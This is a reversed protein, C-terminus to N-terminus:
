WESYFNDAQLGNVSKTSNGSARKDIPHQGATFTQSARAVSFTADDNLFFRCLDGSPIQNVAREAFEGQESM